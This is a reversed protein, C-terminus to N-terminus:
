KGKHLKQTKAMGPAPPDPLKVEEEWLVHKEPDYDEKNIIVAGTPNGQCPATRIVVTDM